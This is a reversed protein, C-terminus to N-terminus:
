RRIEIPFADVVSIYRAGDRAFSEIRSVHLCGCVIYYNPEQLWRGFRAIITRPDLSVIEKRHAMLSVQGVPQVEEIAIDDVELGPLPTGPLRSRM